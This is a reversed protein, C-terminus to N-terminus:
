AIVIIASVRNARGYADNDYVHIKQGPALTIGATGASGSSGCVDYQFRVSKGGNNKFSNGANNAYGTLNMCHGANLQWIYGQTWQYFNGSYPNSGGWQCVYGALCDSEAAKAPASADHLNM